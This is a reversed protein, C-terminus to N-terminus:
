KTSIEKQTPDEALLNWAVGDDSVWVERMWESEQEGYGLRAGGILFLKDKFVTLVMNRRAPISNDPAIREWQKGDPSAWVDTAFVPGEFMPDEIKGGLVILKDRFWVINYETRMAPYEDSENETSFVPIKEWDIGDVTRLIGYYQTIIFLYNEAGIVQHIGLQKGDIAGIHSNSWSKGRESLWLDSNWLRNSRNYGGTLCIKDKWITLGASSVKGIEIQDNVLIWDLGNETIWLDSLGHYLGDLYTGGILVSRNNFQTMAYNSRDPRPIPEHVETWNIGNSSVWSSNSPNDTNMIEQSRSIDYIWLLDGRPIPLLEKGSNIFSSADSKLPWQDMDPLPSASPLDGSFPVQYKIDELNVVETNEIKDQIITENLINNKSQEVESNCGLIQLLVILTLFRPLKLFM